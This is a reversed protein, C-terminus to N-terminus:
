FHCRIWRRLYSFKFRIPMDSDILIERTLEPYIALWERREERSSVISEYYMYKVRLKSYVADVAFQRYLGNDKLRSILIDMNRKAGSRLQKMKKVDEGASHIISAERQRYYYLPRDVYGIKGACALLQTTVVRDEYMGDVPFEVDIM